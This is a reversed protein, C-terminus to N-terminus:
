ERNKGDPIKNWLYRPTEDTLRVVERRLIRRIEGAPLEQGELKMTLNIREIRERVVEEARRRVIEDFSGNPLFGYFFTCDIAEAVRRMTRITVSGDRERKEIASVSNKSIGLREALQRGSMGIAYRIARIWGRVPRKMLAAKAKPYRSVHWSDLQERAIKLETSMEKGRSLTSERKIFPEIIITL